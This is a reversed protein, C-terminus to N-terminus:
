PGGFRTFDANSSINRDRDYIAARHICRLTFLSTRRTTVPAPLYTHESKLRSRQLRRSQHQWLQRLNRPRSVQPDSWVNVVGGVADSGYIASAGDKLIDIHDILGLPFLNLDVTAVSFLM